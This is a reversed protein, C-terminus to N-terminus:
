HIHDQDEVKCDIYGCKPVDRAAYLVETVLQADPMRRRSLCRLMYTLVANARRPDNTVWDSSTLFRRDWAELGRMIKEDTM